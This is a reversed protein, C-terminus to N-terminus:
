RNRDRMELKNAHFLPISRAQYVVDHSLYYIKPFNKGAKHKKEDSMKVRQVEM